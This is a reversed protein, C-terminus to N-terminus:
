PLQWFVRDCMEGWLQVNILNVSNLREGGSCPGLTREVSPRM